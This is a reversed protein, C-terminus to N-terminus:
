FRYFKIHHHRVRGSVNSLIAFSPRHIQVANNGAVLLQRQSQVARFFVDEFQALLLNLDALQAEADTLQGALQDRERQYRDIELQLPDM